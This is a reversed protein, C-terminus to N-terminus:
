IPQAQGLGEVEREIAIALRGLPPAVDPDSCLGIAIRGALSIAAVRLAHRHGPEAFTLLERAPHGAISIPAPPGRLNSIELTFAHPDAVLREVPRSLPGVARLDGVFRHLTEADTRKRVRTQAVITALRARPDLESAALDVLFFSDRNGIRPDERELHMSVPVKARLRAGGRPLWARLGGGVAALLVDNVTARPHSAHAIQEAAALSIHAWAVERRRGIRADLQTTTAPPGGLERWLVRRLVAFGRVRDRWEDV